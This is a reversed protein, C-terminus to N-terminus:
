LILPEKLISNCNTYDINQWVSSGISGTAMASLFSFGYHQVHVPLAGLVTRVSTAKFQM